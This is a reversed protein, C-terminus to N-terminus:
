CVLVLLVLVLVLVLVSILILVLVLVLVSVLVLVLVSIISSIISISDNYVNPYKEHMIRTTTHDSVMIGILLQFCVRSEEDM